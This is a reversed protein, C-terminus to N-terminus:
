PDMAEILALDNITVCGPMGSDDEWELDRTELSVYGMSLDAGAMPITEACSGADSARFGDSAEFDFVLDTTAVGLEALAVIDELHVHPAGHFSVPEAESLDVTVTTEGYVVDIFPGETAEADEAEIRVIGDVFACGPLAADAHWVLNSTDYQIYAYQLQDGAIPFSDACNGSDSPRFGDEAQFNFLLEDTTVGLAALEVIETVEVVDNGEFDVITADDLDVVVTTSGYVVELTPGTTETDTAIIQAVDDVGLCGPFELSEDWALSRSEVAIFGNELDIGAVPVFDACNGSSSPRFGDSAEFDFELNALAVGLDAWGVVDSLRVHDVGDIDVTELSRLDVTVTEDGYVVDVETQVSGAEAAHIRAVDDVHLCGPYELESDWEMNRTTLHVYGQALMSGPVPVYDVCTSHTDTMYGDGGEFNFELDGLAVGLDAAEVIDSLRAYDEGDELTVAELDAMDVTVTTEGYVVEVSGIEGDPNESVDQDCAGLFGAVLLAFLGTFLATRHGKFISNTKLINVTSM